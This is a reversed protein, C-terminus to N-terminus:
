NPHLITKTPLLITEPRVDVTMKLKVTIQIVGTLQKKQRKKKDLDGIRARPAKEVIVQNHFLRSLQIRDHSRSV